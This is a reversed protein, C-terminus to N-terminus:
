PLEKVGAKQPFREKPQETLSDSHDPHFIEKRAQM